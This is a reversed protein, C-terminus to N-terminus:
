LVLAATMLVALVVLGLPLVLRYVETEVGALSLLATAMAVRIPSLLTFNSGAVNQVAAIWFPDASAKAALAAQLPLMMGNSAVNSGTLFGAAAGFLPSAALSLPGAINAWGAALASAIGAASMLQAMVVFALTVAVPVRGARWAENFVPRWAGGIKMAAGYALATALVLMSAHYLFPFAPLDAVPRLVLTQQLARGLPHILRTAVLVLTLALYPATRWVTVRIDAISPRHDRLYRAALLAGTASVGAIEVSAYRNMLWVLADLLLLWFLDDLKEATSAPRRLRAALWWFVFLYGLLIVASLLASRIGLETLPMHILAAGVVTGIALAGWPVLIQSFLAFVVAPVGTLGIRTLISVAIIAGVGFGTASEAFPGALFCAVFLERHSFEQAAKGDSVRDRSFLAPQAARIVQYFVLGAVIVAIAQWAIWAGHLSERMVFDLFGDGPRAVYTAPITLALGIMGATVLKVRGSALLLVVVALPLLYLVYIM